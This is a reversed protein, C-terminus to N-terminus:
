FGLSGIKIVNQDVDNSVPLILKPTKKKMQVHESATYFQTLAGCGYVAMPM